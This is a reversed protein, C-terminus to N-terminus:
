PPIGPHNTVTLRGLCFLGAYLTGPARARVVIRTDQSFRKTANIMREAAKLSREGVIPGDDEFLEGELDFYVTHTNVPGKPSTEHWHIITATMGLLSLGLKVGVDYGELSQLIWANKLIQRQVIEPLGPAIFEEMSYEAILAPLAAAPCTEAARVYFESIPRDGIVRDLARIVAKGRADMVQPPTIRDLQQDSWYAMLREGCDRNFDHWQVM